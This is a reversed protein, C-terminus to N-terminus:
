DEMQEQMEVQPFEYEAMNISTLEEDLAVCTMKASQKSKKKNVMDMEMMLSNEGIKDLWKPDFSKPLRKSNQGAALQNFSVPTDFAVYMTMIVDENEMQFGQCEYGLIDKTGIEKFEFEDMPNEQEEEQMDLINDTMSPIVQGFKKGNREMLIATVGAPEDMVMLMGNMLETGQDMEFSSGFDTGGERLLYNIKMAGKKHQMELTYRWNYEYTNQLIAPDIKSQKKGFDMDFIKDMTKDTEEAAKEATKNLVMEEAAEKARNKIKKWFQAQVGTGIFLFVLLIVINKTRM